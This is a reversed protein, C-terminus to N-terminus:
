FLGKLRTWLDSPASMLSNFLDEEQPAQAQMPQQPVDQLATHYYVGVNNQWQQRKDDQKANGGKWHYRIWADDFDIKGKVIDDLKVEPAIVKDALFLQDQTDESLKAFDPDPKSLEKRDQAPLDNISYGNRKLFKELRTKATKNTASGVSTEYQYKGRGIGKPSDGQTRSPINKSEVQGVSNRWADFIAKEQPTWKRKAAEKELLTKYNMNYTLLTTTKQRSQDWM